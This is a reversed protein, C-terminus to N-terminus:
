RAAARNPRAARASGRVMARAATATASTISPTATPPPPTRSLGATRFRALSRHYATRCCRHWAQRCTDLRAASVSSPLSVSGFDKLGGHKRGRPRTCM